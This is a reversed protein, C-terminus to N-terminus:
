YRTVRHLEGSLDSLIHFNFQKTDKLVLREILIRGLSGQLYM